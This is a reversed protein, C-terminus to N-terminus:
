PSSAHCVDGINRHVDGEATPTALPHRDPAPRRPNKEFLLTILSAEREIGEATAVFQSLPHKRFGAEIFRTEWWQRDRGALAELAIWLNRGAIRRIEALAQPLATDDLRNLTGLNFVTDFANNPFPLRPSAGNVEATGPRPIDSGAQFPTARVMQASVWDLQLVTRSSFFKSLQGVFDAMGFDKEPKHEAADGSSKHAPESASPAATVRQHSENLPRPVPLTRM